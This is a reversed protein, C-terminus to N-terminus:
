RMAVALFVQFVVEVLVVVLVFWGAYVVVVIVAVTSTFVFYLCFWQLSCPLLHLVSVRFIKPIVYSCVCVLGVCDGDRCM